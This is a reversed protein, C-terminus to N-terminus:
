SGRASSYRSSIMLSHPGLATILRAKAITMTAASTVDVLSYDAFASNTAHHDIVLTEKATGLWPALLPVAVWGPM